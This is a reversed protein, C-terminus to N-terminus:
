DTHHLPFGIGSRCQDRAHFAFFQSRRRDPGVKGGEISSCPAAANMDDSGSIWALGVAHGSFTEAGIILAEKDVLNQADDILAPRKTEEALVDRPVSSALEGGEDGSQLSHAVANRCSYEARRFAACAMSPLPQEDHGVQEALSPSGLRAGVEGSECAQAFLTARPATVAAPRSDSSRFEDAAAHPFNHGVAETASLRFLRLEVAPRVSSARLRAFM